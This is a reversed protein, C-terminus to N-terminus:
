IIRVAKRSKASKAVAEVIRLAKLGDEGTVEVQRRGRVALAFLRHPEYGPKFADIKGAISEIELENMEGINNIEWIEGSFPKSSIWKVKQRDRSIMGHTGYIEVFDMNSAFSSIFQGVTGESFKVSAITTEDEPFLAPNVTSTSIAMVESIEQELIFQALDVHHIALQIFSGGGIKEPSARWSGPEPPHVLHETHGLGACFTIIRGFCGERVMSRIQRYVPDGRELMVVGLLKGARDAAEIVEAAERVNRTMPKQLLCHKGANLAELAMPHHLDNPTNLVVMEIDQKLLDKYDTFCLPIDFESATKQMAEPNIDQIVVLELEEFNRINRIITPTIGGCGSIGFRVPRVKETDNM